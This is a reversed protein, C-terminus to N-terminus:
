LAALLALLALFAQGPDAAKCPDLWNGRVLLTADIRALPDRAPFVLARHLRVGLREIVKM